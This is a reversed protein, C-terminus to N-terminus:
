PATIANNDLAVLSQSLARGKLSATTQLTIGTQCLIIGEFHSGAGLTVSGAVQWYINKAQAGGSLIVSMAGALDLDNSIQLIWVDNAGGAFTVNTPITVSTGFKYLGPTLTLGGLNGSNQDLSDPNSRGAADSYAAEMDLVATTLNTPTPEGYNSAYVKWPSAVSASTASVTTADPVPPVLEFGTIAAAVEPSVGLNGGTIMSGTVNTIGTKALIAYSGADAVNTTSGLEVPAPGEGAPNQPNNSGGEGGGSCASALIALSLTASFTLRHLSLISRM